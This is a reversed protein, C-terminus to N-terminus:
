RAYAVGYLFAYGLCPSNCDIPVLQVDEVMAMHEDKIEGPLVLTKFGLLKKLLGRIQRVGPMFDLLDLIKVGVAIVAQWIRQVLRASGQAVPFAGFLEADFSHRNLLEFLEPASYYKNSLPSPRFGPRDKNPICIILIGRSKLIRLCEALFEDLYFYQIVEVAVVVDFCDDKFPLKHANLSALEIGGQYHHQACRINGEAYDGGIVRRARRALYGLGLGAGCGVELVQKGQVFRGATYYRYCIMRFVAEGVERGPMEAEHSM